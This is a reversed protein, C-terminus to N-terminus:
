PLDKLTEVSHPDPGAEVAVPENDILGLLVELAIGTIRSIRKATKPGPYDLGHEFRSWQSQAIGVASAAQAQSLDHGDRWALLPHKFSMDVPM